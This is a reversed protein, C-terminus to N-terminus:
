LTRSSGLALTNCTPTAPPHPPSSHTRNGVHGVHTTELSPPICPEVSLCSSLERGVAMLSDLTSYWTGVVCWRCGGGGMSVGGGGM